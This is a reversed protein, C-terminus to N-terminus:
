LAKSKQTEIVGNINEKITELYEDKLVREFSRFGALKFGHKKALGKIEEVKELSLNKGISYNEYKGEMALIMTEAMCAYSLRPPFGFNFNFNIDGPVEVVGGEIVLVDKRKEFVEVSVDRPRAVDCVIAGSKLYDPKIISEIASSVTIVIDADKLAYKIDTQINVNKNTIKLIEEAANELKNKNPAVLSLSKVKPAMIQACVKGISGTAGIVVANCDKIDRDLVRCAEEVAEIATAITYSNGTTVAINLNESVTIGGDGVISTFAGLGLIKAGLSEALKGAQIIKKVVFEEPLSVIQQTVLPLGIFWGDCSGYISNAGNIESVKSPPMIRIIRDLLGKPLKGLLTYKRSIDEYTIPHICFAFKGKEM